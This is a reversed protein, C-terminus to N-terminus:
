RVSSGAPGFSTPSREAPEPNARRFVADRREADQREITEIKMKVAAVDQTLLDFRHTFTAINDKVYRWEGGGFWIGGIVVFLFAIVALYRELTWHPFKGNAAVKLSRGLAIRELARIEAILQADSPLLAAAARESVTDGTGHRHAM